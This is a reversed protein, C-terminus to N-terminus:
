PTGDEEVARAPAPADSAARGLIGDYLAVLDALHARLPPRAATIAARRREILALPEAAPEGALLQSLARQAHRRAGRISTIVPLIELKYHKAIFHWNDRIGAPLHAPRIDEDGMVYARDEVLFGVLLKDNVTLSEGAADACDHAFVLLDALSDMSWEVGIARDRQAARAAFSAGSGILEMATGEGFRALVGPVFRRVGPGGAYPTVLLVEAREAADPRVEEAFFREILAAVDQGGRPLDGSRSWHGLRNFLANLVLSSGAGGVLFGEGVYQKQVGHTESTETSGQSDSLLLSGTPGALGIHFTM